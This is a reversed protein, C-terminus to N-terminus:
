VTEVALGSQHEHAFYDVLEADDLGSPLLVLDAHQEEAYEVLAKGSPKHPLWGYAELGRERARIVQLALAHRGLKELAVPDLPHEYQEREGEGAWVNPIPDTFTSGAASVDYLIVRAHEREARDLATAVSADHRGTEDTGVVFTRMQETM